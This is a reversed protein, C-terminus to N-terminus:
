SIFALSAMFATVAATSSSALVCEDPVHLCRHLTVGCPVNHPRRGDVSLLAALYSYREIAIVWALIRLLTTQTVDCSFFVFPFSIYFIM